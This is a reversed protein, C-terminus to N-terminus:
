RRGGNPRVSEKTDRSKVLDTITETGTGTLIEKVTETMCNHHTIRGRSRRNRKGSRSHSDRDPEESKDQLRTKRTSM